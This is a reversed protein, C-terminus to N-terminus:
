STAVKYWQRQTLITQRCGSLLCHRQMRLGAARSARWHTQGPAPQAVSAQAQAAVWSTTLAATHQIFSPVNDGPFFCFLRGAAHVAAHGATQSTPVTHWGRTFAAAFPHLCHQGSAHPQLHCFLGSPSQMGFVQFSPGPAAMILVMHSSHLLVPSCCAFCRWCCHTAAPATGQWSHAAWFGVIIPAGTMNRKKAACPGSWPGVAPLPHIADLARAM